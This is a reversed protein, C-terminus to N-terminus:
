CDENRRHSIAQFIILIPATSSQNSTTKGIRSRNEFHKLINTFSALRNQNFELAIDVHTSYKKENRQHCM